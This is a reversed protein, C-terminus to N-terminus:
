YIGSGKQDGAELDSKLKENDVLYKKVANVSQEALLEIVDLRPQLFRQILLNGNVEVSIRAGRGRAPLEKIVISFDSVGRPAIWKGYFFEYYDRGTKSRTEDIILGEIEIADTNTNRTKKIKTPSVVIQDPTSKQAQLKQFDNIFNQDSVMKKDAVIKEDDFVKLSVEFSATIGLNISIESSIKEEEPLLTFSGSQTSIAKGSPGTKTLRMSYSYALTKSSKNKVMGKIVAQGSEDRQLDFWADLDLSQAIGSTFSLIIVCLLCYWRLM